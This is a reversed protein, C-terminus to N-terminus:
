KKLLFSIKEETLSVIELLAKEVRKQIENLFFKETDLDILKKKSNNKIDTNYKRRFNRLNIKAIEEEEKIKKVLAVRSQKSLEVLTVKIEKKNIINFTLNHTLNKMLILSNYINGLQTSDFPIISLNRSDVPVISAVNFINSQNNYYNVLVGSFIDSSIKTASIKFIKCKYSNILNLVDKDFVSLDM